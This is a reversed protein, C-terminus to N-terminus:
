ASVLSTELKLELGFAYKNLTALTSISDLMELKAM